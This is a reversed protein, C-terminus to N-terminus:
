AAENRQMPTVANPGSGRMKRQLAEITNTRCYPCKPNKNLWDMVCGHHFLHNCEPLETMVSEDHIPMYCICCFFASEKNKEFPQNALMRQVKDPNERKWKSLNSKLLNVLIKKEQNFRRRDRISKVLM